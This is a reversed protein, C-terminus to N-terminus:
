GRVEILHARRLRRLVRIQERLVAAEAAAYLFEGPHDLVHQALNEARDVIQDALAEREMRRLEQAEDIM